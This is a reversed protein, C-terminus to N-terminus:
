FPRTQTRFHRPDNRKVAERAMDRIQDGTIPYDIAGMTEVVFRVFPTNVRDPRGKELKARVTVYATPRRDFAKQFIRALRGWVFKVRQTNARDRGPSATEARALAAWYIAAANLSYRLSESDGKRLPLEAADIIRQIDAAAFYEAFVNPEIAPDLSRLKSAPFPKPSHAAEWDDGKNKM